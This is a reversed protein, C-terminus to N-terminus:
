SITEYVASFAVGFSDSIDSVTPNRTIKTTKNYMLFPYLHTTNQMLFCTSILQEDSGITIGSSPRTQGPVSRGVVSPIFFPLGDIVIEGSMAADKASIAIQGQVFVMKGVKYYWGLQVSYTNVGAVTLGKLIPTWTGSTIALGHVGGADTVSDETHQEFDAELAALGGFNTITGTYGGVFTCNDGVFDVQDANEITTVYYQGNTGHPFMITRRGAAIANNVLTQLAVTDDVVGGGVLGEQLVNYMVGDWTRINTLTNGITKSVLSSVKQM